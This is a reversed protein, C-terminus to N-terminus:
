NTIKKLLVAAKFDLYTNCLQEFFMFVLCKAVILVFCNTKFVIVLLKLAELFIYLDMLYYEM